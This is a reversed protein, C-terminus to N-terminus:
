CCGSWPSPAPRRLPNVCGSWGCDYPPCSAIAVAQRPWSWRASVSNSRRLAPPSAPGPPSLSAKGAPTLPWHAAETWLKSGNTTKRDRVARILLEVGPARPQALLEYIDSERDALYLLETHPLAQRWTDLLRLEHGWCQSEKQEIPRHRRTQRLGFAPDRAWSQWHLTGLCVGEPSFAVLPHLLFGYECDSSHPGLGTTARQGPYNLFTTDGVCLVRRLPAMRTLTATQHGGLVRAPTVAENQFFRYAGHMEAANPCALPVSREPQASLRGLILGLRRRLRVDGLDVAATEARMWSEM